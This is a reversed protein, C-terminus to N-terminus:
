DAPVRAGDATSFRYVCTQRYVQGPRLIVDPFEPHHVADPPHGTELCLGAFKGYACGGKGRLTGDLYHGTYFVIAPATTLVDMTRGSGPQHLRAVRALTGHPHNHLYSLDYGGVQHIRAGIPTPTTFDFPTGRVPEIRGTPTLEEDTPTYQDADIWLIHDLIDGSRAGALNFYSHHTLNVPTPKDTRATYQIKLANEDTLTYQVTVDLQGPYGEDGDGSVHRLKVAPGDPCPVVEAAWVVHSLGRRGGHLHHRGCNRTLRYTAGDLTFQAEAIRFAVRGVICGFYPSETEYQDLRDFGLVVDALQGHRDAVFLQVLTAGYTIISATMGHANCLTFGDVQRGDRTTAFVYQEVGCHTM